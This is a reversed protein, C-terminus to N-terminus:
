ERVWKVHAVQSSSSDHRSPPNTDTRSEGRKGRYGSIKVRLSAHRKRRSESGPRRNGIPGSLRCGTLLDLTPVHQQRQVNCHLAYRNPQSCLRHSCRSRWVFVSRERETRADYKRKSLALEARIRKRTNTDVADTANAM